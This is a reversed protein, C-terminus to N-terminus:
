VADQAETRNAASPSIMIPLRTITALQAAKINSVSNRGPQARPVSVASVVGVGPPEALGAPVADGRGAVDVVVVIVGGQVVPSRCM